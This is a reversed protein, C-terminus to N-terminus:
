AIKAFSGGVNYNSPNWEYSKFQEHYFKQSEVFDKILGFDTRNVDNLEEPKFYNIAMGQMAYQSRKWERLEANPIQLLTDYKHYGVSLAWSPELEWLKEIFQEKYEHFSSDKDKDKTIMDCSSTTVAIVLALIFKNM